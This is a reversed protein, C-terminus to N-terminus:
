VGLDVEVQRPRLPIQGFALSGAVDVPEVRVQALEDRLDDLHQEGAVDLLATPYEVGERAGSRCEDLPELTPVVPDTDVEGCEVAQQHLDLRPAVVDEPQLGLDLVHYPPNLRAVGRRRGSLAVDAAPERRSREPFEEGEALEDALVLM